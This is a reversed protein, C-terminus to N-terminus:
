CRELCCGSLPLSYCCLPSWLFLLLSSFQHSLRHLVVLQLFLVNWLSVQFLSNFLHLYFIFNFVIFNSLYTVLYKLRRICITYLPIEFITQLKVTPSVNSFTAQVYPMKKISFKWPYFAPYCKVSQFNEMQFFPNPWSFLSRLIENYLKYTDKLLRNIAGM